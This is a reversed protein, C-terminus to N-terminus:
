AEDVGLIFRHTQAVFPIFVVGGVWEDAHFGDIGAFVDGTGAVARTDDFVVAGGETFTIGIIVVRAIRRTVRACVVKVAVVHAIGEFRCGVLAFIAGLRVMVATGGAKAVAEDIILTRCFTGVVTLTDTVIVDASAISATCGFDEFGDPFNRRITRCEIKGTAVIGFDAVRFGTVVGDVPAVAGGFCDIGALFENRVCVLCLTGIGDFDGAM